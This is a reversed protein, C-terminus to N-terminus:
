NTEYIKWGMKVCEDKFEKIDATSLTQISGTVGRLLYEKGPKAGPVKRVSFMYGPPAPEVYDPAYTARLAQPVEARVPRLPQDIAVPARATRASTTTGRQAPADKFYFVPEKKPKGSLFDFLLERLPDPPLPIHVWREQGTKTSTCSTSMVISVLLLFLVSKKAM